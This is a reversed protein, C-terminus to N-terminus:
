RAPEPPSCQLRVLFRSTAMAAGKEARRCRLPGLSRLPGEEWLEWMRCLFSTLRPDILELSDRPAKFATPFSLKSDCLRQQSFVRRPLRFPVYLPPRFMRPLVATGASRHYSSSWPWLAQKQWTGAVATCEPSVLCRVMEDRFLGGSRSETPQKSRMLWRQCTDDLQGKLEKVSLMCPKPLCGM